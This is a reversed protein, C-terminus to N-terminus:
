LVHVVFRQPHKDPPVVRLVLWGHRRPRVRFRYRGDSDTRTTTVVYRRGGNWRGQVVVLGVARRLHGPASGTRGSVTLTDGVHLTTVRSGRAFAPVALAAAAALVLAIRVARTM